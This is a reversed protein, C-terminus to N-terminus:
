NAEIEEVGGVAKAEEHVRIRDVEVGDIIPTELLERLTRNLDDDDEFYGVALINNPGCTEYITVFPRRDALQTTVEDT